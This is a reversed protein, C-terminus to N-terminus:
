HPRMATAISAVAGDAQIHRELAEAERAFVEYGWERRAEYIEVRALLAACLGLLPFTARM